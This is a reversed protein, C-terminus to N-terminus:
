PPCLPIKGNYLHMERRGRTVSIDDTPNYKLGTFIKNRLIKEVLLKLM